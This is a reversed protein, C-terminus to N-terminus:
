RPAENGKRKVAPTAYKTGCFPCFSAIAVAKDRKRSNIKETAIIPIGSFLTTVIMSNREALAANMEAICTCAKV